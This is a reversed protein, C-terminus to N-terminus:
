APFFGLLLEVLVQALALALALSGFASAFDSLLLEFSYFVAYATRRYKPSLSHRWGGASLYRRNKEFIDLAHTRAGSLGSKTKAVCGEHM